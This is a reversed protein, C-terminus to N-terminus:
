GSRDLERVGVGAGPLAVAAIAGIAVAIMGVRAARSRRRVTFMHPGRAPDAAL